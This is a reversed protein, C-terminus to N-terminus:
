NDFLSNVIESKTHFWIGFSLYRIVFHFIFICINVYICRIGQIAIIMIAPLLLCCVTLHTSRLSYHVYNSDFNFFHTMILTNELTLEVIIIYLSRCRYLTSWTNIINKNHGCKKQGKDVKHSHSRNVIKWM